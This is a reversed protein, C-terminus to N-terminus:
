HALSAVLMKTFAEDASVSGELTIVFTQSQSRLTYVAQDAGRSVKVDWGASPSDADALADNAAHILRINGQVVQIRSDNSSFVLQSRPLTGEGKIAEAGVLKFSTGVTPAIVEFGVDRSLQALSEAQDETPATTRSFAPNTDSGQSRVSSVVLFGGLGLACGAVISACINMGAIKNM